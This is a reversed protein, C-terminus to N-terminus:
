RSCKQTTRTFSFYQSCIQRNICQSCCGATAASWQQQQHQQHPTTPESSRMVTGHCCAWSTWPPGRVTWRSCRLMTGILIFRCRSFLDIFYKINNANLQMSSLSDYFTCKTCISGDSMKSKIQDQDQGQLLSSLGFRFTALWIPHPWCLEEERVGETVFM